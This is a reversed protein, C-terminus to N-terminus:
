MVGGGMAGAVQAVCQLMQLFSKPPARHHNHNGIEEVGEGVGGQVAGLAPVVHHGDLDVVGVFVGQGRETAQHEFIGLGAFDTFEVEAGFFIAGGKGGVAGFRLGCQFFFEAAEVDVV